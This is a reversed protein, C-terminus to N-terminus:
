RRRVDGRGIRLGSHRRKRGVAAAGRPSSPPSIAQDPAYVTIVMAADVETIAELARRSVCLEFAHPELGAEIGVNFERSRARDWVRRYRPPVRKILRVFRTIAREATRAPHRHSLELHAEYSRGRGGVYLVVVDEGFAQVLGDLPAQSVIDLDVNCYQTPSRELPPVRTM